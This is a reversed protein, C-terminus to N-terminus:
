IGIYFFSLQLLICVTVTKDRSPFHITPLGTPNLGM